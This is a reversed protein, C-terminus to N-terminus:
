LNLPKPLIESLIWIVGNAVSQDALLVEANNMYLYIPMEKVAMLLEPTQPNFLVHKGEITTILTGPRMVTSYWAGPAMHYTLVETLLTKNAMLAMVTEYPVKLWANNSPAFITFPGEGTLTSEIGAFQILRMTIDLGPIMKMADLLNGYPIPYIVRNMGHIIGNKAMKDFMIIQAGNAAIATRQWGTNMNIRIKVGKMLSEAMMNDKIMTTMVKGETVHAKLINVLLTMNNMMDPTLVALADDTPAFITFPGGTNLTEKLGAMEILEVLKTFGLASMEDVLGMPATEEMYAAPDFPSAIAMGCLAALLVLMKM